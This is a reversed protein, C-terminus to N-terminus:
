CQAPGYQTWEGQLVGREGPGGSVQQHKRLGQGMSTARLSGMAGM